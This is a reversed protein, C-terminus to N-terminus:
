EPLPLASGANAAWSAGMVLHASATHSLQNGLAARALITDVASATRAPLGDGHDITRPGAAAKTADAWRRPQRTLEHMSTEVSAPWSRSKVRSEGAM